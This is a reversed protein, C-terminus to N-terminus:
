VVSKRDLTAGYATYGIHIDAVDPDAEAHDTASLSITRNEKNISLSPGAAMQARVFFPFALAAALAALRLTIM